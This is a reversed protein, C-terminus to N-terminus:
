RKDFGFSILSNIRRNFKNKNIQNDFSKERDKNRKKFKDLKFDILNSIYKKEKKFILNNLQASNEKSFSIYFENKNKNENKNKQNFNELSKTSKIPKITNINLNM